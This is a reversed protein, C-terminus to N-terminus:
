TPEVRVSDEMFAGEAIEDIRYRTAITRRFGTRAHSATVAIRVFADSGLALLEELPKTRADLAAQVDAPLLPPPQDVIDHLRLKYVRESDDVRGRTRLGDLFPFPLADGVPIAFSTYTHPRQDDLGRVVLRAHLSLESLGYRRQVNRVKFRYRYGCPEEDLPRPLRNLDSVEFRPTFHILVSWWALISAVFGGAFGVTLGLVDV